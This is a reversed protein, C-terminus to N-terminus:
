ILRKEIVERIKAKGTSLYGAEFEDCGELLLKEHRTVEALKTQTKRIIKLKANIQDQWHQFRSLTTHEGLETVSGLTSTMSVQHSAKARSMECEITKKMGPQVAERKVNSKEIYDLQKFLALHRPTYTQMGEWVIGTPSQTSERNVRKGENRLVSRRWTKGNWFGRGRFGNEEGEAEVFALDGTEGIRAKIEEELLIGFALLATEDMSRWDWKGKLPTAAYFDSAYTHIAKLLDSNPLKQTEPDLRSSALYTDTEEYRPPAGKRRFLVEDPPVPQQKRDNKAGSGPTSSLFGEYGVRGAVADYLTAVRRPSKQRRPTSPASEDRSRKRSTWMSM